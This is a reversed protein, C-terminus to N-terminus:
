LSHLIYIFYHRVLISYFVLTEETRAEPLGEGPVLLEIIMYLHWFLSSGYGDLFFFQFRIRGVLYLRIRIRGEFFLRIQILGM